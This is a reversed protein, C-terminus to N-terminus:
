LYTALLTYFLVWFIIWSLFFIGIGTTLIKRPKEVQHVFKAKLIYYSVLYTVLALSIGNLLKPSWWSTSEPQRVEFDDGYVDGTGNVAGFVIKCTQAGSPANFTTSVQSWRQINGAPMSVNNEGILGGTDNFWRIGFVFQVRDIEGAFFGSVLYPYGERVPKVDGMWEASADTVNIRLSRTGTRAYATSWEAMAGSSFWDQPQANGAEVSRNVVLNTYILGTAFAYGVCLLAAIIGLAFRSWYIKTLPKM